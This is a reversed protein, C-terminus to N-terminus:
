RASGLVTSSSSSLFQRALCRLAASSPGLGASAWVITCKRPSSHSLQESARVSSLTSPSLQRPESSIHTSSTQPASSRDAGPQSRPFHILTCNFLALFVLLISAGLLVTGLVPSWYSVSEYQGTWGVWFIAIPFMIGGIMAQGLRAEPPVPEPAMADVKRAYSRSFYFIYTLNAAVAGVFISLFTVGTLGANFGHVGGM